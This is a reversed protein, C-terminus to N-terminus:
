VLGICPCGPRILAACKRKGSQLQLAQARIAEMAEPLDELARLLDERLLVYRVLSYGRLYRFLPGTAGCRTAAAAAARAPQEDLQPATRQM